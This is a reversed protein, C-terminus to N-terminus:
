ANSKSAESLKLHCQKKSKSKNAQTSEESAAKAQLKVAQKTHKAFVFVKQLTMDEIDVANPLRMFETQVKPNMEEVFM